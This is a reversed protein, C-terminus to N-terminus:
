KRNCQSKSFGAAMAVCLNSYRVEQTNISGQCWFPDVVTLCIYDDDVCQTEMFGAVKAICSNSYKIGECFVPAIVQMCVTPKSDVQNDALLIVDEAIEHASSQLHQGSTTGTVAIVVLLALLSGAVILFTRQYINNKLVVMDDTTNSDGAPTTNKLSTNETPM